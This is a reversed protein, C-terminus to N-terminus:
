GHRALVYDKTVKGGVGPNVVTSNIWINSNQLRRIHGRRLHERPHRGGGLADVNTSGSNRSGIILRRYSDFPLANRKIKKTDKVPPGCHINKCSLAALLQLLIAGEIAIDYVMEQKTKRNGLYDNWKDVVPYWGFDPDSKKFALWAGCEWVNLREAHWVSSMAIMDGVDRALIIRKKSIEPAIWEFGDSKGSQPMFYEIVISEFPLNYKEPCDLLAVPKIAEDFIEGGDPMVFKEGVVM